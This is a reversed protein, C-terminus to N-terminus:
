FHVLPAPHIPADVVVPWPIGRHHISVCGQQVHFMHLIHGDTPEVQLPATVWLWPPPLRYYCLLVCDLDHTYSVHQYFIVIQLSVYFVDDDDNSLCDSELFKRLTGNNRVYKAQPHM